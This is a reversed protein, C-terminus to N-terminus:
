TTSPSTIRPPARTARGYFSAFAIVLMSTSGDEVLLSEAQAVTDLADGRAEYIVLDHSPHQALLKKFQASSGAVVDVDLGSLVSQFKHANDLSDAIFLVTKRQMM